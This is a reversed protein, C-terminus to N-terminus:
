PHPARAPTSGHHATAGMRNRRDQTGFWGRAPEAEGPPMWFIAPGQFAPPSPRKSTTPTPARLPGPPPLQLGSPPHPQEIRPTRPFRLGQSVLSPPRTPLQARRGRTRGPLQARAGRTGKGPASGPCGRPPPCPTQLTVRLHCPCVGLVHHVRLDRVGRVQLSPRPPAHVPDIGFWLHQGPPAPPCYFGPKTDWPAPAGLM